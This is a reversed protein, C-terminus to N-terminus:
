KPLDRLVRRKVRRLMEAGEGGAVALQDLYMDKMLRFLMLREGPRLDDKKQKFRLIIEGDPTIQEYKFLRYAKKPAKMIYCFKDALKGNSIRKQHAAALGDAIPLLVGSKNLGSIRKKMERPSIGWALLHLHWSILRKGHIRAGECVNVYYAPEIIGLYSLGRLGRRLIRIFGPVNVNKEQHATCCRRDCLTVLFIHQRPEPKDPGLHFHNSFEECVLEGWRIRAKPSVANLWPPASNLLQLYYFRRFISLNRAEEIASRLKSGTRLEQKRLGTQRFLWM